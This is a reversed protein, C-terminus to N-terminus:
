FEEDVEEPFFRKNDRKNIGRIHWDYEWCRRGDPAFRTYFGDNYLKDNIKKEESEFEGFIIKRHTIIRKSRKLYFMKKFEHTIYFMNYKEGSWTNFKIEQNFLSDKDLFSFLPFDSKLERPVKEYSRETLIPFFNRSGGFKEITKDLCVDYYELSSPNKEKYWLKKSNELIWNVKARNKEKIKINQKIALEFYYGSHYPVEIPVEETYSIDYLENIRRKLNIAQKELKYYKNLHKQFHSMKNERLIM